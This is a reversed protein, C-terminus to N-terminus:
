LDLWRNDLRIDQGLRPFPRDTEQSAEVEADSSAADEVNFSLF